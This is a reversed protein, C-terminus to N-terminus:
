QLYKEFNADFLSVFANNISGDANLIMARHIKTIVWKDKIEEFNVAHYENTTSFKKKLLSEKWHSDSNDINVAIFNINPFKAKLETARKHALEMHSRAESSWFFVITKQNNTPLRDVVNKQTDMLAIPPLFKSNALNQISNGIKRIADNSKKDTSFKYYQELFAKNHEVNQDELLYRFAINHLISNKISKNTFLSDAVKLKQINNQLSFTDNDECTINNLMSTLYGVFPAFHTLKPNNFDIEKRYCYYNKPLNKCVSANTRFKHVMPYMERKAWFPMELMTKAYLDFDDNWDIEEKRREYFAKKSKHDANIKSEFKILDFEYIDFTSNREDENKLFLEILFNNKEDGRGCFTLSNDFEQTNLRVMLSDGKDFYIYQYEPDHRFTYMGSSLTDYKQFFRNNKDLAITDIVVNDKCLYVFKSNPNIIEGGFYSPAEYDKIIGECSLLFPFSLVSTIFLLKKYYAIM